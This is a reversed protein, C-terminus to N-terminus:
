KLVLLFSIPPFYIFDAFISFASFVLFVLFTYLIIAVSSILGSFHYILIMILSICVVGVIGAILTKQLTEDGFSAGVTNSSIETLKSPLSGSNILDVLNQVEELTFNGQIIVDSAFGQSVTAASLCNSGSTGCLNGEKEYSNTMENFDLWIVILNKGSEAQSIKNTVSYFTDKDKISLAVAPNGASDKGVRAATGSSLVDSMMLINDDVDRFTLTAVTSLQNRATDPDTVGALKVRIRDNGELVIEPESVGLSDIRKLLTKYTATLKDQTMKSDDISEVKYLIEFGGQLDLGFKLSSFLPIFLYCIASTLIILFVTTTIVKVKNNKGKM